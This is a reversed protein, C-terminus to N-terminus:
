GNKQRGLSGWREARLDAARQEEPTLRPISALVDRAQVRLGILISTARSDLTSAHEDLLRDTYHLVADALDRAHRDVSKM